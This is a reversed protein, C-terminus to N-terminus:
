NKIYIFYVFLAQPKKNITYKNGELRYSYNSVRLASIYDYISSLGSIYGLYFASLMIQKWAYAETCICMCSLLCMCLYSVECTFNFHIGLEAM